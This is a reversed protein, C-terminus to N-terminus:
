NYLAITYQVSKLAAKENENVITVLADVSSATYPIVVSEQIKLPHPAFDQTCAGCTGGCDVGTEAQNQKGDTCTPVQYIFAWFFWVCFALMLALYICLIMSRKVTRSM